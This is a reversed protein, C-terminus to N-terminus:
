GVNGSSVTLGLTGISGGVTGNTYVRFDGSTILNTEGDSNKTPVLVLGDTASSQIHLSATTLGGYPRWDTFTGDIVSLAHKNTAAGTVDFIPSDGVVGLKGFPTTTGIGVNGSSNVIFSGPGTLNNSFHLNTSTANTSTANAFQLNAFSSDDALRVQLETGVRKLAPFANTTGGLQLDVGAGTTLVKSTILNTDASDDALRLRVAASDRQISPFLSTKGGFQLRNFSTGATDTLTIVGSGPSALSSRSGSAGITFFNEAFVGIGFYGSRPRFNDAHGIDYTADTGFAFHGGDIVLRGSNPTSTGIGMNGDTNVVWRYLSKSVDYLAFSNHVSLETIGTQLRYIQGGSATNNIRISAEDGSTQAGTVELRAAPANTGIGTYRGAMIALDTTGGTQITKVGSASSFDLVASAASLTVPTGTITLAGTLTNTSGLSIRTNSGSDKIDNGNIQLDDDVTLTDQTIDFITNEVGLSAHALTDGEADVSFRPVDNVAIGFLMFNTSASSPNIYTISDRIDTGQSSGTFWTPGAFSSSATGSVLLRNNLHVPFDNFDFRKLTSDWKIIANPSETGREFQLSSDETDATVNATNIVFANEETGGAVLTDFTATNAYFNAWRLSPSGLDYTDDASPDIDSSIRGTLTVTDTTANGLTTNGLVSLNGSLSNTGVTATSNFLGTIQVDGEADVRFRESGNVAMGLLVNNTGASTPNIYVSGEDIDTGTPVALFQIQGTTISSTLAGNVTLAGGITVDGSTEITGATENVVGIGLGGTFYGHGTTDGAGKGVSFFTSPTTTGIGVRGTSDIISLRANTGTYLTLNHSAASGIRLNSNSTINQGSGLTSGDIFLTSGADNVTLKSTPNTTGIGVRRNSDVVLGDGAVTLLSSYLNTSSATTSFFSTTTAETGTARTFVLDTLNASDAELNEVYANTTTSNTGTANEFVLNTITIDETIINEFTGTEAFLDTFTGIQSFFNTTTANTTTSNGTVLLNGDVHLRESPTATGIGVNGSDNITVRRLGGTAIGIVGTGPLYIGSDLDNTFSYTPSNQTGTKGLLQGAVEIVDSVFIDGNSLAWSPVGSGIRVEDGVIQLKGEPGTTGIGVNRNSDVVLGTGGVTLLSSFLNTSSATTSFLNTTTANTTTSNGTVLLNGDVHLRESPTDTGIGVDTGFYVAESGTTTIFRQYVTGLDLSTTNIDTGFEWAATNNSPISTRTPYAFQWSFPGTAPAVANIIANGNDNQFRTFGTSLNGSDFLMINNVQGLFNGLFLRGNVAQEIRLSDDVSEYIGTDGDGFTIGTSISGIDGGIHLKSLPTDTGLGLRDTSNDWFFNANSETLLGSAGIFPVSGQTLSTHLNGSIALNTSTANTTTSNTIVANTLTSDTATLADTTIDDTIISTIRAILGAITSSFFNTSTANTTTANDVLLNALYLENLDEDWFFNVNDQALVGGAGIFLVSGDLGGEIEGGIETSGVSKWETGNYVSYKNNSTNYVLLGEAPSAIADREVETMRPALFGAETSTIEFVASLHPTTTGVGVKGDSGVVLSTGGVNLISTFFNTTTASTGTANVFILNSTDFAGASLAGTSISSASLSTVSTEKLTTEGGVSFDGSSSLSSFSGGKGVLSSGLEISGRVTINKSVTLNGRVNLDDQMTVISEFYAPGFVDLAQRFEAKGFVKLEGGVELTSLLKTAGRVLLTKGVEVTGDLIVDETTFNGNATIFALTFENARTGGVFETNLNDVMTTSDVVIPAIGDTAYSRLQGETEIHGMIAINGESDLLLIENEHTGPRFGLVTNSDNIAEKVANLTRDFFSFVVPVPLIAFLIVMVLTVAVLARSSFVLKLSSFRPSHWSSQHSFKKDLVKELTYELESTDAISSTEENEPYFKEAKPWVNSLTERRGFFPVNNILDTLKESFTKQQLVIKKPEPKRQPLDMKFGHKKLDGGLSRLQDLSHIDGNEVKARLMQRKQYEDLASKTTYWANGIKKSTLKKKRALLSLYESSYPVLSSAESM